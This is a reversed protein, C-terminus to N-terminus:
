KLDHKVSSDKVALMKLNLVDYHPSSHIASRLVISYGRANSGKHSSFEVFICRVHM